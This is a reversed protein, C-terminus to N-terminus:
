SRSRFYKSSLGKGQKEKPFIGSKFANLVKQGGNPLIIANILTLTKKGRKENIRKTKYIRILFILIM